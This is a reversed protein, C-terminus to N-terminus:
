LVVAVYVQMLSPVLDMYSKTSPQWPTIIGNSYRNQVVDCFEKALRALHM